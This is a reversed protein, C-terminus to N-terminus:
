EQSPQQERVGLTVDAQRLEDDRYFTIVLTTGSDYAASLVQLVDGSNAVPKDSLRIIIDEPQLGASDAPSGPEISTFAAGTTTPLDLNAAVDPTVDVLSVGLFSREVSGFVLLEEVVSKVLDISIALGINSTEKIVATNIGVVQGFVDVLPGGSNGPNISADTQIAGSISYQGARIARDKASVIGRTVTPEGALGLAHGIAVVDAGVELNSAQGFIVPQFGQGDIKLVALDTAPDRGVIEAALTRGDALTVSIRSDNGDEDVVVHNNTVIHGESDIIVGTGVGRSSRGSADLTISEAEVRVVSPRLKRVTESVSLQTKPSDTVSQELRTAASAEASTIEGSEDNSVQGTVSACAIAFLAVTAILGLLARRPSLSKM